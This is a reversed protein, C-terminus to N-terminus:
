EALERELPTRFKPVFRSPGLRGALSEAAATVEKARDGIDELMRVAIEGDKRQAWGGVIRGDCWVTPGINGSRDFLPARHAGLYWDRETWGMPTPDLAPLLAVWPEPAAVPGADEALVFGQTGGLDVEVPRVATLARKVEGVTLGTWWKLDALTGPGFRGLWRRVLEAQASAADWTALAGSTGSAGSPLWAEAPAWRYQTSLWSGRPRGRVIRGEAALIPLLRGAVSVTAEYTKGQAVVFQKRLRPEDASLEVSLAQGRACLAHVASDGLDALWGAMDAHTGIDVGAETLAAVLKRREKAAIADTCAAQVVPALEVPLVFITRRMGLIRVLSRDAYLAAEIGELTPARMRAVASLYVSAADTGHLAVVGGAAAAAGAARTATALHHRVALRARREEIDIRRMSPFYRYRPPM